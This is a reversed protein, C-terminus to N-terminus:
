LYPWELNSVQKENTSKSFDLSSHPKKKEKKLRKLKTLDINQQINLSENLIDEVKAGSSVMWVFHLHIKSDSHTFHVIRVPM